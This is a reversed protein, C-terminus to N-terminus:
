APGGALSFSDADDASVIVPEPIPVIFRGGRELFAREKRIIEEAYNWALLLYYDPERAAAEEPSCVPIHTGPLLKGHKMPTTDGCFRVERPGLGCMLLLASGKSPAGYGAVTAGGAALERVTEGIARTLARVRDAFELYPRETHLGRGHELDLLAAVSPQPPRAASEPTAVVAISGGHVAVREVDTIRLGHAAFLRGLTTLSFYSLHEHYITDFQNHDLLDVLYPVEIILAGEPALVEGVGKLVNHVDDIHAFCQRGLVLRARGKDHAIRAAPEPGFFAPHTEIGRANARAALNAAPDVGVVRLGAEQFFGLQTGVNSGLEVVLDGDALEGAHIGLEVIRRMHRRMQESDSSVYVYDRFLTEPDVVHRLCMLRCARCLVVDTPHAPEAPLGDEGAPELFGNAPPMAGFSIVEIWDDAGCVRCAAVRKVEGQM